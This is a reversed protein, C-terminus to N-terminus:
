KRSSKHPFAARDRDEVVATLKPAPLDKGYFSLARDDELTLAQPFHRDLQTMAEYAWEQEVGPVDDTNGPVFAGLGNEIIARSTEIPMLGDVHAIAAYKELKESRGQSMATSPNLLARALADACFKTLQEATPQGVSTSIKEDIVPHFGEAQLALCTAEIGGLPYVFFRRPERDATRPCDLIGTITLSIAASV